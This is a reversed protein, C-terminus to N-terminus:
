LNVARQAARERRQRSWAMRAQAEEETEYHVGAAEREPRKSKLYASLKEMDGGFDALLEARNRRVEAVIPDDYREDM